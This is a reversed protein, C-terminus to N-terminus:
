MPIYCAHARDKKLGILSVLVRIVMGAGEHWGGGLCVFGKGIGDDHSGGEDLGTRRGGM